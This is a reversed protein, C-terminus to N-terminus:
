KEEAETVTERAIEGLEARSKKQSSGNPAEQGINKPPMILLNYESFQSQTQRDDPSVRPLGVSM